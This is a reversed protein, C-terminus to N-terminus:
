EKEWGSWVRAMAAESNAAFVSFVQRMPVSTRVRKSVNLYADFDLELPAFWRGKTKVYSATLGEDLQKLEQASLRKSIDSDWSNDLLRISLGQSARQTIVISKGTERLTTVPGSDVGADM